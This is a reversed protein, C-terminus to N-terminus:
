RASESRKPALYAFAFAVLPHLLMELRDGCTLAMGSVTLTSFLIGALAYASAIKLRSASTLRGAVNAGAATCLFGVLIAVPTYWNVVTPDAYGSLSSGMSMLAGSLVVTGMFITGVIDASFAIAVAALISSNEDQRRRSPVLAQNPNHM